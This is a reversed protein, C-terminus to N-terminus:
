TSPGKQLQAIVADAWEVSFQAHAHILRGQSLHAAQIAYQLEGCGAATCADQMTIPAHAALYARLSMGTETLKERQKESQARGPDPFAAGGNNIHDGM